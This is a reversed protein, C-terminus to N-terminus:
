LFITLQEMGGALIDSEPNYNQGLTLILVGEITKKKKLLNPSQRLQM